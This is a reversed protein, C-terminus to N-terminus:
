IANEYVTNLEVLCISKRLFLESTEKVNATSENSHVNLFAFRVYSGWRCSNKQISFNALFEACFFLVASAQMGAMSRTKLNSAFRTCM